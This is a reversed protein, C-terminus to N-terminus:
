AWHSTPRRQDVIAGFAQERREFYAEKLKIDAERQEIARTQELLEKEKEM